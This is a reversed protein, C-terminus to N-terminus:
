KKKAMTNKLFFTNYKDSLIRVQSSTETSIQEELLVNEELMEDYVDLLSGTQTKKELPGEKSVDRQDDSGMMEDVVKLLMDRVSMKKDEDFYQDKYRADLVTAVLYLPECQVGSFRVSVAKLLIEKATRVGRDVDSSKGLLRTLAMFAPIVDAVSAEASSIDRTLQEFPALLTIM